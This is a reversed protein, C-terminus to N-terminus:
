EFYNVFIPDIDIKIAELSKLVYIIIGKDLIIWIILTITADLSVYNVRMLVLVHIGQRLKMYLLTKFLM